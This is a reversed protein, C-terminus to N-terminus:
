EIFYTHDMSFNQNPRLLRWAIVFHARFMFAISYFMLLWFSSVQRDCDSPPLFQSCFSLFFYFAFLRSFGFSSLPLRFQSLFLVFILFTVFLFFPFFRVFSCLFYDAIILPTIVVFLPYTKQKVSIVHYM